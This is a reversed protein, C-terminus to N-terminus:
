LPERQATCWDCVGCNRMWADHSMSDGCLACEDEPPERQTTCWGCMGRNRMWADHSMSDGCLVCEDETIEIDRLKEREQERCIASVELCDGGYYCVDIPEGCGPCTKM